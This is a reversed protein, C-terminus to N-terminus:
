NYSKRSLDGAKASIRVIPIAKAKGTSGSCCSRIKVSQIKKQKVFFIKWCLLQCRFRNVNNQYIQIQLFVPTSFRYSLKLVKCLGTSYQKQCVPLKKIRRM